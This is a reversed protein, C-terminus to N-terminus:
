STKTKWKMYSLYLLCILLYISIEIVLGIIHGINAPDGIRYSYSKPHLVKLLIAYFLKSFLILLLFSVVTKTNVQYLRLTIIALLSPFIFSYSLIINPLRYILLNKYNKIIHIAYEGIIVLILPLVLGLVVPIWIKKKLFM